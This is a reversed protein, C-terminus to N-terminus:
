RCLDVCAFGQEADDVFLRRLLRQGNSAYAAFDHLAAMVLSEARQWFSVEEGPLFRIYSEKPQETLSFETLRFLPLKEEWVEQGVRIAEQLEEEIKLLSGSEGALQMKEWVLRVLACLSDAM